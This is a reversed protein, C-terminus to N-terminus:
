EAFRLLNRQSLEEINQLLDLLLAEKEADFEEALQEAIEDISTRGDCRRVVEHATSNLMLMGEPFLLIPDGTIPDIKLRVHSALLPRRSLDSSNM